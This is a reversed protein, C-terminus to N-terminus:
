WNAYSRVFEVLAEVSREFLREGKERSAASPHGSVGTETLEDFHQPYYVAGSGFLDTRVYGDRDDRVFDEREDGVLEERLYLVLSSELEGGHSVGGRPSDRLSQLEDEVFDWYSLVAVSVGRDDRFDSVATKLLSRNGGHGNVVVIREFGDDVLSGLIDTVVGLYTESSLSITGPVGGHHPSYGYPLAPAALAEDAREAVARSIREAILADTGVPLHAGHQEIAGVPVVVVTEDADVAGLDRRTNEAWDSRVM